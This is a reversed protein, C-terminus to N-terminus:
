FTCELRLLATATQPLEGNEQRPPYHADSGFLAHSLAPLTECQVLSCHRMGLVCPLAWMGDFSRQMKERLMRSM